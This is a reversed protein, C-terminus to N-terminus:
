CGNAKREKMTIYHIIRCIMASVCASVAAIAVYLGWCYTCVVLIITVILWMIEKFMARYKRPMPRHAPATPQPDKETHPQHGAGGLPLSNAMVEFKGM